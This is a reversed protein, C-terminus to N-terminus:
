LIILWPLLTLAMTIRLASFIARVIQFSTTQQSTSSPVRFRGPRANAEIRVICLRTVWQPYFLSHKLRLFRQRVADPNDTTITEKL